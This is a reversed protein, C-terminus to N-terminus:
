KKVFYGQRARIRYNQPSRLGVHLKVYKDKPFDAESYYQVLYQAQLENALQRFIRTLTEQNNRTNASNQYGDKLDVPQFNPLFATGGTQDAFKQLGNQARQSIKNLRYSAGAPNIAYFVTDANQLDRLIKNQANQHSADTKAALQNLKQATLANVDIDRYARKEAERTLSSWNDEGDTLALIVRRSQPPANKQLYNAAITVTDYFATFKGSLVITRVRQAAQAANERAVSLVPQDGILFITAHDGPRMTSELFQAAAKKEFEFLPNVSGSVDILLAIELPVKEADSIQAVEQAKNEESVIFDEKKLNQVPQGSNDTVSVPVIVLRSEVRIVDSDDGSQAPTATPKPTQAFVSFVFILILGFISFGHKLQRQQKIM